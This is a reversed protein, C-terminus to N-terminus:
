RPRPWGYEAVDGYWQNRLEAFTEGTGGGTLAVGVMVDLATESSTLYLGGNVLDTTVTEQTGIMWRLAGATATDNIYGTGATAADTGTRFVGLNKNIDNSFRVRVFRSGRRLSVTATYNGGVAMGGRGWKWRVVVEEPDNRIIQPFGTDSITDTTAAAGGTTLYFGFGEWVNGGPDWGSITFGAKSNSLAVLKLLGNGIEYQTALQGPIWAGERTYLTGGTTQAWKVYAAGRHHQAPTMAWRPKKTRDVDLAVYMSTQDSLERAIIGAAPAPTYVGSTGPVAHMVEAAADLDVGTLRSQWEVTGANGVLEAELDFSYSGGPVGGPGVRVAPRTVRYWGDVAPDGSHTVPIVTGAQLAAFGMRAAAAAHQDGILTGTITLSGGRYDLDGSYAVDTDLTIRGIQITAV